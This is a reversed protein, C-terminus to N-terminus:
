HVTFNADSEDTISLHGQLLIKMRGQTTAYNDVHWSYSLSLAPVNQAIRVWTAGGDRSYQIILSDSQTLNSAEWKIQQVSGMSWVEGGNPQIITLPPPPPGCYRGGTKLPNSGASGGWVIMESGTWVATHGDRASPANTTTTAIWSNTSPDYRGGTNYYTGFGTGGGWVIMESGTWVVTHYIRGVPANITSTATWTNTGPNYRAGTNLFANGFGGWVIMERGTWVATHLHRAPANTTSTAIWSDTGPNYRGGTNSDSGDWGGWVIMRSGTWVATHFDRRSPANTTSTAIWSDTSPNYRGGTNVEREIGSFGGWVIMESGTWVATHFHRASPANTTSTATWSNTGPNYRGGTNPEGSADYGGWVIMESGTWVATHLYRGTPANTSSTTSWSDTSPNYSSGTRRYYRDGWVIMESGTWVATHLNRGWPTTTSTATWEDSCQRDSADSIEPLTYVVQGLTTAVSMARLADTQSSEVHRSQGQASSDTILREALIPRALCEAIVAPDNGLADFLERLVESQRTDRAMRNIEGQLQEATIPQGYDELARSDHLYDAVQHEVQAQSMVADLSPKPNPNDKPWIRHRWYVDEIARQYAVREAFSFARPQSSTKGTADHAGTTEASRQWKNPSNSASSAAIFVVSLFVAYAASHIVHGSIKGETKM